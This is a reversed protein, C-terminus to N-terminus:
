RFINMGIYHVIHHISEHLDQSEMATLVDADYPSPDEMECGGKGSRKPRLNLSALDASLELCNANVSPTIETKVLLAKLASVFQNVDPNNNFGGKSRIKSFLMELHDQGLKYALMYKVEPETEFM